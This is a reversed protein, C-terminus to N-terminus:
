AKNYKDLREKDNILFNICKNNDDFYKICGNMQPLKIYLPVISIDKKYAIFYKFVGKKGYLVKNSMVIRRINVNDINTSKKCKHFTNKNIGDEGFFLIKEEM